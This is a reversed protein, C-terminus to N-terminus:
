FCFCQMDVVLCQVGFCGCHSVSNIYKRSLLSHQFLCLTAQSSMWLSPVLYGMSVAAIYLTQARVIWSVQSGGDVYGLIFAVM